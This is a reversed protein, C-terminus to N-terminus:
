RTVPVDALRMSLVRSVSDAGMSVGYIAGAHTMTVRNHTIVIFQTHEALQRLIECFRVVNAEDLAADVEDLLCFPPPNTELLAFLLAASVMAREGGSLLALDQVRKGPIQVFVEVGGFSPSKPASAPEEEGDEDDDDAAHRRPATLELRASGGSFLTTFHRQFRLNVAAFTEAFQRRMTTDLENIIARLNTAGQEMDRVQGSLFEHRTKLEEYAQPADPDYGGLQRLRGRLQEIHRRMRAADEPKLRDVADIDGQRVASFLVSVEEITSEASLEGLEILEERIQAALADLADRARQAELMRRRYDNEVNSLEQRALAQERDVQALTGEAHALAAEREGLELTLERLRARADDLAEQQQAGAGEVEHQKTLIDRLREHRREVQQELERIQTSAQELRQALAKTEQQQVALATRQQSLEEQQVRNAAQMEDLTEEVERAAEQADRQLAEQEGVRTTTAVIEEELGVVESAVQEMVAQSLQGESYAREEDRQMTAVARALEQARTEADHALRESEAAAAQREVQAAIARAHQTDLTTIAVHQHALRDPLTHLERERAIVTSDLADLLPVRGSDGDYSTSILRVAGGRLWGERHLVEGDLTVLAIPRMMQDAGPDDVAHLLRRATELDAVVSIGDLLGRMLPRLEPETEVFSVAPGLTDSLTATAAPEEQHIQNSAEPPWLILAHGAHRERLWRACAIGDDTSATVLARLFPGLAAEIAAEYGEAVTLLRVLVGRVPPQETDPAHLIAQVGDSYGELDRQWEKLLALRDALARRERQADALAARSQEVAEQGNAMERLLAERRAVRAEVDAHAQEFTIQQLERATRATDLRRRATNLSEQREALVQTREDLQKQLRSLETRAAGLRAQTQIVDRQAARLRAEEREQDQRASHQASEIAKLTHALDTTRTDQEALQGELMVLQKHAENLTEQQASQESELDAAQRELSARREQGVAVDRELSQARGSTEGRSRRLAAIQAALEDRAQRFQQLRTDDDRLGARITEIHEAAAAEAAGTRERADGLDAWQKTYWSRLERRLDERASMYDRARRAQEALPGLRPEIEGLIDRLRALNTQTLALKQEADTRQAQFQRIGAADEFLGRREEARLSLAQDILGQGIVTYSDHGIRAQALLLLLDRLRVRQGSILYENEGSRFSRRAGTVESHESPLWGASNDLVLTVEAMQMQARNQGGAFIIDDSKKGRLQRMSQEGLVWRIADAVNSKGSGNPGVIATIGPSFELVTRPAFSKFGQLELRKLYVAERGGFPILYHRSRPSSRIMTGAGAHRRRSDAQLRDHLVHM